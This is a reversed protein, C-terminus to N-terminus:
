GHTPMLLMASFLIALWCVVSAFGFVWWPRTEGSTRLFMGVLLSAILGVFGGLVFAVFFGFFGPETEKHWLWAMFVAVIPFNAAVARVYANSIPM